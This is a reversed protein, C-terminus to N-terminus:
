ALAADRVPPTLAPPVERVDVEPRLVLLALQHHLTLRLDLEEVRQLVLVPLPRTLGRHHDVDGPLAQELLGGSRRLGRPSGLCGAGLLRLALRRLLGGGAVLRLRLLRGGLARSLLLPPGSM